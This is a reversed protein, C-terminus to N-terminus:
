PSGLDRLRCVQGDGRVKWGIAEEVDRMRRETDAMAHAAALVLNAVDEPTLSFGLRVTGDLNGAYLAGAGSDYFEMSCLSQGPKESGVRRTAGLYWESAIAGQLPNRFVLGERDDGSM